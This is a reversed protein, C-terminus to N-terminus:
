LFPLAVGTCGTQVKMAEELAFNVKRYRLRGLATPITLRCAEVGLRPVFNERRWFTRVLESAWGAWHRQDLASTVFSCLQVGVGGGM